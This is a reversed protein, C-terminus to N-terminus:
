AEGMKEAVGHTAIIDATLYERATSVDGADMVRWFQDGTMGEMKGAVGFVRAAIDLKLSIKYRGQRWRDMLDVSWDEYRNYKTRVHPPRFGCVHTRNVCFPLDFSHNNWGILSGYRQRVIRVVQWFTQLIDAEHDCTRDLDLFVLLEGDSKPRVGYGIAQVQGLADSIPANEVFKEWEADKIAQIEQPYQRVSAAHDAAARSKYAAIAEPRKYNKPVVIKDPDWTEPEPPFEYKEMKLEFIERLLKEPGPRTEIDFSVRPNATKRLTDFFRKKQVQQIEM